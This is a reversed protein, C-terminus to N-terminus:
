EDTWPKCEPCVLGDAARWLRTETGGCSACTAGDPRWLMTTPVRPSRNETAFADLTTEEAVTVPEEPERM